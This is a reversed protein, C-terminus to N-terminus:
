SAAYRFNKCHTAKFEDRSNRRPPRAPVPFVVSTLAICCCIFLQSTMAGVAFAASTSLLFPTVEAWTYLVVWEENDDFYGEGWDAKERQTHTCDKQKGVPEPIRCPLGHLDLGALKEAITYEVM